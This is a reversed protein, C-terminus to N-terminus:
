RAPDVPEIQPEMLELVRQAQIRRERVSLGFHTTVLRATTNKARIRVDIAGRPERGPVSLPEHKFVQEVPLRSLLANGTISCETEAHHDLSRSIRMKPSSNLCTLAVM